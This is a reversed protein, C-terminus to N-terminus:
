DLAFVAGDIDYSDIPDGNENRITTEYVYITASFFEADDEDIKTEAKKAWKEDWMKDAVKKNTYSKALDWEGNEFVFDYIDYGSSLDIDNIKGCYSIEYVDYTEM